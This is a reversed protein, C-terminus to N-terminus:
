RTNRALQILAICKLDVVIPYAELVSTHAHVCACRETGRVLSCAVCIHSHAFRLITCTTLPWLPPPVPLLATSFWSGVRGEQTLLCCHGSALNKSADRQWRSPMKLANQECTHAVGYQMRLKSSKNDPLCGDHRLWTLLQQLWFFFFFGVEASGILM